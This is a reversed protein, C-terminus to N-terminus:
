ARPAAPANFRGPTTSRRAPLRTVVLTPVAQIAPQNSMAAMPTADACTHNTIAASTSAPQASAMTSTACFAWPSRTCAARPEDTSLEMCAPHLTPAANPPNTPVRAAVAPTGSTAWRAPHPSTHTAAITRAPRVKRGSRGDPALCFSSSRVRTHDEEKQKAGSPRDPLFTRGALVMAAVCVLGWGALHAVLPVGATAALTGVLGGLAAGVSWGAHMSNLVSSGRDAQVRLGQANQAVDVIADAWGVLVLEAIVLWWQVSEVGIGAILLWGAIWATGVSTPVRGGARRRVVGPLNLAGAAGLAYGAVLVGFLADSIGLADKVEAYRAMLTAPLAGNTAFAITTGIRARRVVSPVIGCGSVVPPLAGVGRRAPASAHCPRGARQGRGAWPPLDSSCVDSSWDRPWRTHRRRSSFFFYISRCAM